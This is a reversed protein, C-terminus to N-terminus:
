LELRKWVHCSRRASAPEPLGPFHCNFCTHTLTHPHMFIQICSLLLKSQTHSFEQTVKMSGRTIHLKSLRVKVCRTYKTWHRTLLSVSCRLCTANSLQSLVSQPWASATTTTTSTSLHCPWRRRRSSSALQKQVCWWADTPDRCFLGVLRAWVM